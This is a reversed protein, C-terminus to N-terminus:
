EAEIWYGVNRLNRITATSGLETLRRRVNTVTAEVVNTEVDSAHGWCHELLDNKSWIRGPQESLTKLLLFERASLITRQSGVTIMREISDLELNGVQFLHRVPKTSRRVLANLRAVLEQSAFPKGLYDDVGLNILDSREDVTSIASLVLIPIAPWKSRIESLSNKTDYNGLLRDLVVVDFCDSSRLSDELARQNAIHSVTFSQETLSSSLMDALKPDDEILLLKTMDM